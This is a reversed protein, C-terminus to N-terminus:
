VTASQAGGARGLPFHQRHLKAGGQQALGVLRERDLADLDAFQLRVIHQHPDLSRTKAVGVQFTDLNLRWPAARRTTM